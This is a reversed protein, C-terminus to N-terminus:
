PERESRLPDLDVSGRQSFAIYSNDPAALRGHLRYGIREPVGRRLVGVQDFIGSVNGVATVELQLEGFAPLIGEHRSVGRAFPRGNLEVEYALGAVPIDFANPNQLRLRLAYEQELLGMNLPRIDALTVALPHMAPGRSACAYLCLLAGALLARQVLTANM